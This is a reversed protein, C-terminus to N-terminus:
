AFPPARAPDGPPPARSPLRHPPTAVVQEPEAALILAAAPEPLASAPSELQVRQVVTQDHLAPPHVDGHGHDSADRLEVGVPFAMGHEADHGDHTAAHVFPASAAILTAALALLAPLTRRRAVARLSALM